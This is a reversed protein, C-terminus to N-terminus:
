STKSKAIIQRDPHLDKHTAAMPADMDPLQQNTTSHKPSLENEPIQIKGTANKMLAQELRKFRAIQRDIKENVKIIVWCLFIILISLIIVTLDGM